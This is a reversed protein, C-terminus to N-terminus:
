EAREPVFRVPMEKVGNIFNSAPPPRPSRSSGTWGTVLTELMLEIERMALHKGLCFHPGGGGFGM